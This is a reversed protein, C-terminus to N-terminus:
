KGPWIVSSDIDIGNRKCNQMYHWVDIMPGLCITWHERECCRMSDEELKSIADIAKKAIKEKKIKEALHRMSNATGLVREKCEAPSIKEKPNAFQAIPLIISLPDSSSIGTKCLIVNESIQNNLNCCYHNQFFYSHILSLAELAENEFDNCAYCFFRGWLIEGFLHNETQNSDQLFELVYNFDILAKDYETLFLYIMGREAHLDIVHSKDSYQVQSIDNSLDEIKEWPEKIKKEIGERGNDHAYLHGITLTCVSATLLLKRLMQSLVDILGSIYKCTLIIKMSFTKM